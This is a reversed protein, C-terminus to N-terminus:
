RRRLDEWLRRLDRRESGGLHRGYVADTTALDAALMFLGMEQGVGGLERLRAQVAARTAGYMAPHARQGRAVIRGLKEGSTARSIGKAFKISGLSLEAAEQTLRGM